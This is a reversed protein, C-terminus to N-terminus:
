HWHMLHKWFGFGAGLIRAVSATFSVSTSSTATTTGTFFVRSGVKVASSTTAQGGVKFVTASNTTVTTTPTKNGFPDITIIAGDIATVIGAAVHSFDMKAKMGEHVGKDDNKDESKDENEHKIFLGLHLGQNDKDAHVIGQTDAFATGTTLLVAALAGLVAVSTVKKM